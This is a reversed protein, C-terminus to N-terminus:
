SEVPKNDSKRHGGLQIETLQKLDEGSRLTAFRPEKFTTADLQKLWALTAEPSPAAPEPAPRAEETLLLFNLLLLVAGLSPM